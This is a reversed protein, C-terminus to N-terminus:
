ISLCYYDSLESNRISLLFCFLCICSHQTSLLPLLFYAYQWVMNPLNGKRESWLGLEVNLFSVVFLLTWRLGLSQTYQFIIDPYFFPCHSVIPIVYSFRHVLTRDVFPYESRRPLVSDM